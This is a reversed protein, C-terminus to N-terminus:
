KMLHQGQIMISKRKLQSDRQKMLPSKMARMQSRVKKRSRKLRGTKKSCDVERLSMRRLRVMEQRNVKRIMELQNVMPMEKKWLKVKKSKKLINEMRRDKMWM